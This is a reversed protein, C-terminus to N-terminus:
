IGGHGSTEEGEQRKGEEAAETVLAELTSSNFCFESYNSAASHADLERRCRSTEPCQACVRRLDQEVRPYKKGLRDPQFGLAQLMEPLLLRPYAGRTVADNLEPENVNLDHLVRQLDREDCQALQRLTNQRNWWDHIRRGLGALPSYPRNATVAM